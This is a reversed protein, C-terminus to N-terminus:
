IEHTCNVMIQLWTFHHWEFITFKAWFNNNRIVIGLPLLLWWKLKKWIGNNKTGTCLSRSHLKISKQIVLKKKLNRKKTEFFAKSRVYHYDRSFWKKLCVYENFKSNFWVVYLFNQLVNQRQLIQFIMEAIKSHGNECALYFATRDCWDM